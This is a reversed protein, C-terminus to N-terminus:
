SIWNGGQWKITKWGSKFRRFIYARTYGTFAADQSVVVLAYERNKTFGVRSLTYLAIADPYKEYFYRWSNTPTEMLTVNRTEAERQMEKFEMRPRYRGENLEAEDILFHRGFNLREDFIMPQSNILRFNRALDRYRRAHDLYIDDDVKAQRLLVPYSRHSEDDRDENVIEQM